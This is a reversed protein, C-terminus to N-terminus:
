PAPEPSAAFIDVGARLRNAIVPRDLWHGEALDVAQLFGHRVWKYRETVVGGSELKLYLGEMHDSPDTQRRTRVPDLGQAACAADLVQLHDPGIATSRGVLATLEEREGFSGEALVPASVVPAGALLDRRRPTALFEGCATDLVDFEVFYHPLRDYFVTHKAYLWEGYMVYRSGLVAHLADRHVMAWQKLLDFHRERPGGMLYHGRSQLLLTGDGAFSVASNAGDLKEEVVLARGAVAAFPVSALDEDGPQLRSGELHRTRPFKHIRSRDPM